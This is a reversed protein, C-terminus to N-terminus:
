SFEICVFSFASQSIVVIIQMCASNKKEEDLEEISSAIYSCISKRRKTGFPLSVESSLLVHLGLVTGANANM